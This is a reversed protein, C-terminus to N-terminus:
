GLSQHGLDERDKSVTSWVTSVTWISSGHSQLRAWGTLHPSINSARDAEKARGFRISGRGRM